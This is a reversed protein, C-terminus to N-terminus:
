NEMVNLLMSICQPMTRCDNAKVARNKEEESEPFSEEYLPILRNLRSDDASTIRILTMMFEINELWLYASYAPLCCDKFM